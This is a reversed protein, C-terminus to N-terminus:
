AKAQASVVEVLRSSSTLDISLNKFSVLLGGMVAPDVVYTPSLAQGAPAYAPLAKAVADQQAKSLPVASSVVVDLSKSTMARVDAAKHAVLKVRSLNGEAAMTNIAAVVADSLGLAAVAKRAALWAPVNGENDVIVERTEADKIGAFSSLPEKTTLLLDAVKKCESPSYNSSTFFRDVVLGAKQVVGVFADLDKVIKDFNKGKAGAAFLERTIEGSRGGLKALGAPAGATAAVAAV